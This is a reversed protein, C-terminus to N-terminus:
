SDKKLKDKLGSLREFPNPKAEPEGPEEIIAKFAVGPKRPYPDIALILFETALAGLDIKGDVIPDPVDEVEEDDEGDADRAPASSFDVSIDEEIASDFEELSVVCTQRVVGKLTGQVKADNAGLPTVRLSIKLSPISVLEAVEALQERTAADPALEVDMGGDPVASVEILHSWPLDNQM